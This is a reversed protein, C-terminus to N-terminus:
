DNPQRESVGRSAKKGWVAWEVTTQRTTETTVAGHKKYILVCLKYILIPTLM